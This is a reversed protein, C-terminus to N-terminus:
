KFLLGERNPLVSYSIEVDNTQDECAALCPVSRKKGPVDPDTSTIMNYEGIAQFVQNM